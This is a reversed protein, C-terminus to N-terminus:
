EVESNVQVLLQKITELVDIAYLPSESESRADWEDIEAQVADVFQNPTM